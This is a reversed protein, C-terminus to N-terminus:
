FQKSHKQFLSMTDATQIWHIWLVLIRDQELFPVFNTFSNVDFCFVTYTGLLELMKYLLWLRLRHIPRLDEQHLSTKFYQSPKLHTKFWVYYDLREKDPVDKCFCSLSLQELSKRIFHYHHLYKLFKTAEFIQSWRPEEGNWCSKDFDSQNWTDRMRWPTERFSKHVTCDNM